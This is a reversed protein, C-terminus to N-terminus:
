PLVVIRGAAGGNQQRRHAEAAESLSFRASIRGRLTGDALGANITKAAAALDSVSANSIAFGRVSIDRTYYHRVPLPTPSEHAATVIVRAGGALLPVIDRLDQHGSTDWYVDVGGSVANRIKTTVDPNRYDFVLRAGSTRCWEADDARATAIVHAGAASALQVAATGVGGAGGGVIVKDGPRIRAERFLGLYATAATHLVAVAEVPDVGAPLPYLRDAAVVVERAFSGQRGAHGLSNCWVRDGVTFGVAGAGAAAVIGVLDRGIVFPFPIATVFAASRVLTDVQNVALAETRVLLDTPGPSPVALEGVRIGDPPGLETVYASLSSV